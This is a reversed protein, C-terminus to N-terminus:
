KKRLRLFVLGLWSLLSILNAWSRIPTNTLRFYLEHEGPSVDVVIRGLDDEFRLLVEKEDIWGKWGPFFYQPIIIERQQDFNTYFRLWNSGKQLGTMEIEDQSNLDIAYNEAPSTPPMPASKPLYDFIADTYLRQMGKESFLKEQDDILLRKEPKFYSFNIGIVALIFLIAVIKRKLGKSFSVVGGAIFSLSFVVLALFRWPFQLYELPAIIKWILGSRSHTLFSALVFIFGFFLVLWIHKDRNKFWSRAFFFIVLVALGWHLFGVQFAMEDEPGWVSAGYGWFRSFFLQPISVFHALYNFYGMFMTEVHVLNKELFAPLVFFASLGLGWFVALGLNRIKVLDNKPLKFPKKKQWSILFVAWVTMLPVFLMSMINHSLLLGAFSLALLYIRREGEHIVKYIAWFVIPFFAMAWYENMAGRVYLNVAHYPAWIYFTASVLGGLKGWFRSALLYMFVASAVMGLIFIIKVSSIYSFGVLHFIEGLYFPLPPYFNYLPYGYGYGMDPVWRCPFQGDKICKDMQYIRAVQLDDHMPFFGPSLLQRCALLSFILVLIIAIKKRM